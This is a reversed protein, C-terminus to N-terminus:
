PNCNGCPAYGRSIADDRTTDVYSKNSEKMRKVSTCDPYHFKGTNTNLVYSRTAPAPAPAAEPAAGPQPAAEAPGATGGTDPLTADALRSAGTAYDIEVGPQVNYLYVNFCISEGDDDLSYAEMQVGRAVLENGHFDPTVRILVHEDTSGILMDMKQELAQMAGQNMHNTGAILNRDNADEATLCHAILHSREFLHYIGQEPYHAQVWGSPHIHSIDGRKSTPETEPGALAFALTCRGLADLAGYEETGYPVALDEATFTPLNGNLYVGPEDAFAPAEAISAAEHTITDLRTTDEIPRPRVSQPRQDDTAAAHSETEIAQQAPEPAPACGPLLGLTLALALALSAFLTTYRHSRLM